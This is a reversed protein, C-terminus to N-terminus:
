RGSVDPHQWSTATQGLHGAGVDTLPQAFKDHFKWTSYLAYPRLTQGAEQRRALAGDRLAM